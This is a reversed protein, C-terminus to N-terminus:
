PVGEFGDRFILDSLLPEDARVWIRQISVPNWPGGGAVIPNGIWISDPRQAPQATQSLLLHGDKWLEVQGNVWCYAMDHRMTGQGAGISQPGSATNVTVFFGGQDQWSSLATNVSNGDDGNLPTGTSLVLEGDGSPGVGTFQAIWRVMFNGTPPLVITAPRSTIFPFQAANIPASLSLQGSGVSVAGFNSTAQWRQFFLGADDFEEQFQHQFGNAGTCVDLTMPEGLLAVGLAASPVEDAPIFDLDDPSRGENGYSALVDGVVPVIGQLDLAPVLDSSVQLVGNGPDTLWSQSFGIQNGEGFASKPLDIDISYAQGAVFNCPCSGLDVIFELPRAFVPDASDAYANWFRFRARIRQYTATSLAHAYLRVTDIRAQQSGLNDLGIWTGVRSPYTQGIEPNTPIAEHLTTAGPPVNGRGEDLSRFRADSTFHTQASATTTAGILTAFLLTAITTNMRM